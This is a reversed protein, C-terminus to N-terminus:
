MTIIDVVIWPLVQTPPLIQSNYDKDFAIRHESLASSLMLALMLAEMTVLHDLLGAELWLSVSCIYETQVFM